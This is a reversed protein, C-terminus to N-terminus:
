IIERTDLIPLPSYKGLGEEVGESTLHGTFGTGCKPCPALTFSDGIKLGTPLMRTLGCYCNIGLRLEPHFTAADAPSIASSTHDKGCKCAM